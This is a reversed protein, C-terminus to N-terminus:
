SPSPRAGGDTRGHRPLATPAADAVVTTDLDSSGRPRRPAASCRRRLRQRPLGDVTFLVRARSRELIDAAESGKYRTNLPVLAAGASQLGLLAVVWEWCNPAWIAVRDGPEVGAAVLGAAVEDAREALEAFSLRM